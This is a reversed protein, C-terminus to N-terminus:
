RRWRARHVLAVPLTTAPDSSDWWPEAADGDATLGFRIIDLWGPDDDSRGVALDELPKWGGADAAARAFREAGADDGLSGRVQALEALGEPHGASALVHSLREADAVDESARLRVLERYVLPSGAQLTDQAIREAAGAEGAKERLRALVVSGEVGGAEVATRALREADLLDGARERNEALAALLAPGEATRAFVEATGHDGRKECAEVIDTLVYDPVAVTTSLVMRQVEEERGAEWQSWILQWLPGKTGAECGLEALRGAEGFEGDRCRQEVLWELPEDYLYPELRLAVLAYHEASVWDGVELRLRSLEGAARASGREVGFCYTREAAAADDVSEYLNGLAAVGDLDGAEFAATYAQEAEAWRGRLEYAWGLLYQAVSHGAAASARYLRETREFGRSDHISVLDCLASPDDVAAYAYREAEAQSGLLYHLWSLKAIAESHGSASAKTLLRHALHRRQRLTASAALAVLEAPTSAHELLGDWFAQQPCIAGRTRRGLQDLYDELRYRAAAPALHDDDPHRELVFSHGDGLRTLETLAKTFWSRDTRLARRDPEALYSFAADHLFGAPMWEGHGLRRADMAAHVVALQGASATDVRRLLDPVAALYQTISGDETHSLAELLEPDGTSEAARREVETFTSPVRAVSGDLLLARAAAHADREGPAPRRTLTEWYEQWLTALVLVPGRDRDALLAHLDACLRTRVDPPPDLLYRQAEDLWVVTCPAIRPVEEVMTTPDAYHLAPWLRWGAEVLNSDSGEPRHLLSEYAARTKGSSSDSVLVVVASAGRQVQAVAAHLVQTFPRGVYAPLAERDPAVGDHRATRLGILRLRLGSIERGAPLARVPPGGPGALHVDGHLTHVQLAPGRVDGTVKNIEM